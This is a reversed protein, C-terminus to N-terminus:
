IPWRDVSTCCNPPPKKISQIRFLQNVAELVKWLRLWANDKVAKEIVHDFQEKPIRSIEKIMESPMIVM